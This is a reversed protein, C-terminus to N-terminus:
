ANNPHLLPMVMIWTPWFLLTSSALCAESRENWDIFDQQLNHVNHSDLHHHKTDLRIVYSFETFIALLKNIGFPLAGLVMRRVNVSGGFNAMACLSKCVRAFSDPGPSCRILSIQILSWEEKNQNRSNYIDATVGSTICGWILISCCDLCHLWGPTALMVWHHGWTTYPLWRCGMSCCQWLCCITIDEGKTYLESNLKSSNLICM